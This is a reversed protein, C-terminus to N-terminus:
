MESQPIRLVTLDSSLGGVFIIRSLEFCNWVIFMCTDKAILALSPYIISKVLPSFAESTLIESRWSGLSPTPNTNSKQSIIHGGGTFRTPALVRDIGIQFWHRQTSNWRWIQGGLGNPPRLPWPVLQCSLCYACTYWPLKPWLTWIQLWIHSRLYIIM